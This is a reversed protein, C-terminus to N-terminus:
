QQPEEEEKVPPVDLLAAPVLVSAPLLNIRVVPEADALPLRVREDIAQEIADALTANGRAGCTERIVNLVQKIILNVVKLSVRDGADKEVRSAALVMDRVSDMASRLMQAMLAKTEPALKACTDDDFLPSCLALARQAAARTVALEEYLSVQEDHSAHLMETVAEALRPGMYKGYFGPM